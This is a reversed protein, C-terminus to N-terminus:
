LQYRMVWAASVVILGVALPQYFEAVSLLTLGNVLVTLLLGGIFPGVITARGGFLSVGGLVVAAVSSLLYSTDVAPEASGVRAVLLIGAIGALAGSTLYVVLKVRGTNVGMARAGEPNGGTALLHHGFPTHFLTFHAVLAIALAVLIEYSFPGLAGTALTLLPASTVTVPIGNSLILAAASAASFTGLTAIFDNIRGKAVLVGNFAGVAAGSLVALLCGLTVGLGHAYSEGLAMASFTMTSAVSLDIGAAAVVYTQGVTLVELIAGALLVSEINGLTLFPRSAFAFVIVLGILGVLAAWDAWFGLTLAQAVPMRPRRTLQGAGGV